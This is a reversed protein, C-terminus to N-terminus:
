ASGRFVCYGHHALTERSVVIEVTDSSKQVRYLIVVGIICGFLAKGFEVIHIGFRGLVKSTVVSLLMDFHAWAIQLGQKLGHNGHNNITPGCGRLHDHDVQANVVCIHEDKVVAM